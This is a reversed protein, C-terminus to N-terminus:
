IGCVYPIPIFKYYKGDVSYINNKVENSDLGHYIIRKLVIYRCIIYGFIIGLLMNMIGKSLSLRM